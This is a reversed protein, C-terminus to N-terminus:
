NWGNKDRFRKIAGIIKVTSQITEDFDFFEPEQVLLKLLKMTKSSEVFAGNPVYTLVYYASGRKDIGWVNNFVQGEVEQKTGDNMTISYKTKKM